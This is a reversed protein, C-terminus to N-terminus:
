DALTLEPCRIGVIRKGENMINLAANFDRNHHTKCDFSVKKMTIKKIENM